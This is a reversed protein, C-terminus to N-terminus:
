NGHVDSYYQGNYGFTFEASQYPGRMAYGVQSGNFGSKAVYIRAYQFTRATFSRAGAIQGYVTSGSTRRSMSQTGVTSWSVGDDSVQILYGMTYPANSSQLYLDYVVSDALIPEAFTYQKVVVYASSYRDLWTPGQGYFNSGRSATDGDHLYAEANNPLLDYAYSAGGVTFLFDSFASRGEDDQVTLRINYQGEAVATGGMVGTNADIVLGSGVNGSLSFTYNGTGGSATTTGSITITEGPDYGARTFEAVESITLRDRVTITVTEEVRMNVNEPDYVAVTMNYDGATNIYGTITGSSSLALNEPCTVCTWTYDSAEGTGGSVSFPSQNTNTFTSLTSISGVNISIPDLVEISRVVIAVRGEDDEVRIDFQQTGTDTPAGTLVGSQADFSTGAPLDSASLTYTGSGGGGSFTYKSSLPVGAYLNDFEQSTALGLPARVEQEFTVEGTRGESSTAKLTITHLRIQNPAGHVEGTSAVVAMSGTLGSVAEWTYPGTGGNASPLATTIFPSAYTAPAVEPATLTLGHEIAFGTDAYAARGQSDELIIRAVYAGPELSNPVTGTLDTTTNGPSAISLFDVTHDQHNSWTWSYPGKGGVAVASQGGTLNINGGQMYTDSTVDWAISLPEYVTVEVPDSYAEYGYIDTVKYQFTSTGSASWVSGAMNGNEAIVTGLNAEGELYEMTWSPGTANNATASSDGSIVVEFGRTQNDLLSPVSAVAIEAMSTLSISDTDERGEDDAVTVEITFNGTETAVGSITGTSSNMVLGAPAGTWSWTKNETGGIVESQESVRVNRNVMTRGDEFSAITLIVPDDSIVRGSGVATDGLADTVTFSFTEDGASTPTGSIVGGNSVNLWAPGSSKEFRYPPLGLQATVTQSPIPVGVEGNSVLINTEVQVQDAVEVNATVSANSGREDQASVTFSFEGTQTPTGSVEGTETDFAIWAPADSVSWTIEGDGGSASAQRTVSLPRDVVGQAISPATVSLNATAFVSVVETVENGNVDTLTITMATSGATAAEAITIEGTNANIQASISSPVEMSWQYPPEGGTAAPQTLVPISSGAFGFGFTPATMIMEPLVDIFFPVDVLGDLEDTVRAEGTFTGDDIPTGTITGDVGVNLWSPGDTKNWQILGYGGASTLNKNVDVEEGVYSKGFTPAYGELEPSVVLSATVTISDNNKDTATVTFNYSGPENPATGTIFGRKSNIEISAPAGDMSYTKSGEGGEAVPQEEVTLTDGPKVPAFSPATMTIVPDVAISFNANLTTGETDSVSINMDYNGKFDPTGTMVGTASDFSLWGPIDGDLTWTYPPFGGSVQAQGISMPIGQSATGVVPASLDLESFATLSFVSEGTFGNGDRVVIGIEEYDVRDGVIGSLEGTQSDIVLWEPNGGITWTFDGNGGSAQPQSTVDLVEGLRTQGINPPTMAIGDFVTVSADADVANGLADTVEVTFDFNGTETPVGYLTGVAEDILLWSPGSTVDWSYPAIGGTRTPQTTVNILQGATSNAMVPADIAIESAVNVSAQRTTTGGATDTIKLEFSYVGPAGATGSLEGTGSNISLGPNGNSGFNVLEWAYPPFGGTATPQTEVTFVEGTLTQPISPEKISLGSILNVSVPMISVREYADEVVINFNLDGATAATGSIAGTADISMWAPAGSLSVAYPEVGGSITPQVTVNIPNDQLTTGFEPETIILEPDVTFSQTSRAQNGTSDTAVVDFTFEGDTEPIGAYTGGNMSLWAPGGEVSWAAGGAGYQTVGGQDHIFGRGVMPRQDLVPLYKFAIETTVAIARQVTASRDQSDTATISLTAAKAGPYGTTGFTPTGSIIGSVPDVTLGGGGGALSFNYPPIGGTATVPEDVLYPDNQYGAPLAPATITIEDAVFVTLEESVVYEDLVNGAVRFTYTGNVYPTGLVAGSAPHIYMGHPVTGEALSFNSWTGSSKLPVISASKNKDLAYQDQFVMQGTAHVQVFVSTVGTRGESDTARVKMTWNGAELAIGSLTGDAGLSLWSPREEEPTDFTYSVDGSHGQIGLTGSVLENVFGEIRTDEAVELIPLVTITLTNSDATRLEQGPLTLFARLYVQFEGARTAVGSIQKTLANISLGSPLSGYMAIGNANSLDFPIVVREGATINEVSDPLSVTPDYNPDLLEGEFEVVKGAITIEDATQFTEVDANAVHRFLFNQANASHVMPGFALTAALLTNFLRRM